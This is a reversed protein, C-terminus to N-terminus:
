CEKNYKKGIAKARDLYYYVNRPKIHLRDVIESVSFGDREKMEFVQAIIPNKSDMLTRIEDYELKAQLQEVMRNDAEGEYGSEILGDWSIINAERDEPKRGYPCASCKNSEPCRILPKLKGEVMCRVARYGNRHKRRLEGLLFRYTAEDAPCLYVTVRESGIHWTRCDNWTINLTELQGSHEIEIPAYYNVCGDKVFQTAQEIEEFSITTETVDTNDNTTEIIITTTAM